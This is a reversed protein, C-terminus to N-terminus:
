HKTCVVASEKYLLNSATRKESLKQVASLTNQVFTRLYISFIIKIKTLNAAIFLMFLFKCHLYIRSHFFTRTFHVDLVSYLISYIILGKVVCNFVTMVLQYIFAM